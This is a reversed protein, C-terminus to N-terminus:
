RDHPAGFFAAELFLGPEFLFVTPDLPRLTRMYRTPKPSKKRIVTGVLAPSRDTPELRLRSNICTRAESEGFHLLESVDVEIVINALVYRTIKKM